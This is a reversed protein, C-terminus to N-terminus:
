VVSGQDRSMACWVRLADVTERVDHVRVISAGQAVAALSAAISAALRDDVARGTLHGLTSKRSWGALLPYGLTALEPLGRTLALNHAVTKGFGFGPDLVIRERAVGAAELADARASLFAKVETTVDDYVPAEQMTRPAGKMHMLCVAVQSRAVIALAEPAQLAQIDNIMVAGADIVAKMVAPKVTDVSVAVGRTALAEVLPLVRRLEEDCSVPLAGPRSSEGGVDIMDAGDDIMMLAEKLSQEFNALKGGGSFSDPTVNVVGMVYPRDLVWRHTGLTLSLPSLM